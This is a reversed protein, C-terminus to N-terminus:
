PAVPRDTRLPGPVIVRRIRVIRGGAIEIVGVAPRRAAPDLGRRYARYLRRRVGFVRRHPDAETVFVAGPSVVPVGRVRRASPMHLHGFVVCDVRGFRRRLARHLGLPVPRGAVITCLASLAEIVAGRHGHTVGIRIGGVRVGLPRAAGLGAAEDHNGLVHVVPAIEGLADLVGPSTLDGAHIILDVGALATVVGPPLRPLYEGVHTDAIVGVRLVRDPPPSVAPGPGGPM